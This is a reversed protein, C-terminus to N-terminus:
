MYRQSSKKGYSEYMETIILRERSPVLPGSVSHAEEAAASDAGDMNGSSSRTHYETNLPSM